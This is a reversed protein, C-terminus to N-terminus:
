GADTGVQGADTGVQGADASVQGADTGVQGADTGVQGADTGVQGADTGVQGAIGKDDADSSDETNEVQEVDEELHPIQDYHSDTDSTVWDSRISVCDAIGSAVAVLRMPDAVRDSDFISALDINDCHDADLDSDFDTDVEHNQDAVNATLVVLNWLVHSLGHTYDTADFVM